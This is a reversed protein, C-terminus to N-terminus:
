DFKKQKSSTVNSSGSIKKKKVKKKKRGNVMYVGMVYIEYGDKIFPQQNSPTQLTTTITEDM